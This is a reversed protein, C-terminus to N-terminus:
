ITLDNDAKIDIADKLLKQLVAAFVAIVASAFIIVLGIIIIGPADDMEAILYFLPMGIIYLISFTIACYKINKLARVSLESFAKNKDIYSLLKFAQYLAFYFPIATAYLDMLVLYKIYAMGPYLEAAFSGIKPVLFICLALVPIGIFIVAMKLFLTSCKKM